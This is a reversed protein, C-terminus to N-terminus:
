PSNLWACTMVQKIDWRKDVDKELLGAVVEGAPASRRLLKSADYKGNLILMQLRPLFSDNFPLRSTLIGYLVCGLAWMDCTPRPMLSAIEGMPQPALEEPSLYHLSGTNGIHTPKVRPLSLHITEKPGNQIACCFGPCDLPHAHPNSIPLIINGVGIHPRIMEQALGFDGLKCVGEATMLINELKVDHHIIGVQLHLYELASAVMGFLRKCEWEELDRKQIYDLLTGFKALESIIITADDLRIVESMELIYPHHLRSWIATERDIQRLYEMELDRGELTHGNEDGARRRGIPTEDDDDDRRPVIKVAVEYLGDAALPADFTPCVSTTGLFVKSFAGSGLEKVLTYDGIEDGVEYEVMLANAMGADSLSAFSFTAKQNLSQMFSMAPSPAAVPVSAAMDSTFSAAGSSKKKTPIGVRSPSWGTQPQLSHQDLSSSSSQSSIYSQKRLRLGTRLTNPSSPSTLSPTFSAASASPIYSAAKAPAMSPQSYVMKLNPRSPHAPQTQILAPKAHTLIPRGKGSTSVPALPVTHIPEHDMPEPKKPIDIINNTGKAAAGDRDMALALHSLSELAMENSHEKAANKLGVPTLTATSLNDHQTLQHRSTITLGSESHHLPEEAKSEQSSAPASAGTRNGTSTGEHGHQNQKQLAFSSGLLSNIVKQELKKKTFDVTPQTNM